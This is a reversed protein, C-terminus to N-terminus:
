GALAAPNPALLAADIAAIGEDIAANVVPDLGTLYGQIRSEPPNSDQVRMGPFHVIEVFQRELFINTRVYLYSRALRRLLDPDAVWRLEGGDSMASWVEDQLFPVALGRPTTAMREALTDLNESLERRLVKLVDRRRETAVRKEQTEAATQQERAERLTLWVAVPVGLAVGAVTALFNSGFAEKFSTGTLIVVLLAIGGAVLIGIGAAVKWGSVGPLGRRRRLPLM